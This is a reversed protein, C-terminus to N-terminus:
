LSKQAFKLLSMTGKKSNCSRCAPVINSRIYAGGKSVPRMHEQALKENATHCYACRFNFSGLTEQWEKETLTHAVKAVRAKRVQNGRRGTARRREPHAQLWRKTIFTVREKNAKHWVASLVKSREKVEPKSNRIKDTEKRRAKRSNSYATDCEKCKYAFGGQGNGKSFSAISKEQKCDSCVKASINSKSAHLKQYHAKYYSTHCPKCVYSLGDSKDHGKHFDHLSKKQGCTTCVKTM